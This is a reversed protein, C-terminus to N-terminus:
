FFKDSLKECMRGDHEITYYKYPDMYQEVTCCAAVNGYM